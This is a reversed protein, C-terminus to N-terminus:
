KKDLVLTAGDSTHNFKRCFLSFRAQLLDLQVERICPALQFHTLVQYLAYVGCFIKSLRLWWVVPPVIYESFIWTLEHDQWDQRCCSGRKDQRMQDM